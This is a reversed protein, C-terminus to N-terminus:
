QLKILETPKERYTMYSKLKKLDQRECVISNFTNLAIEPRNNNLSLHSLLVHQLKKNGHELVMLAAEYNSLHGDKSVIRKKLYHPYPGNKLMDLDHNSELIVLDSESVNSCCNECSKGIDTLISVSKGGKKIRFSVPEAADHSKAFPMIKMGDLDIEDDTRFFQVNGMDLYCNRLTGKNVFVPINHRRSLLEIGRIHDTHEHSIFIGQINKIDRGIKTLRNVIQKTSIGVDVLVGAGGSGVYFCNGSSGSALVSVELM